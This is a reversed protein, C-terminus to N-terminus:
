PPAPAGPSLKKLLNLLSLRVEKADGAKVIAANARALLDSQLSSDRLSGKVVDGLLRAGEGGIGAVHEVKLNDFQVDSRVVQFHIVADPLLSGNPEFRSTVECDLTLKVRLRARVSNDFL